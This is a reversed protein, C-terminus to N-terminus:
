QIGMGLDGARAFGTQEAGARTEQVRVLYRLTNGDANAGAQTVRAERFFLHQVAYALEGERKVALVRPTLLFRPPGFLRREIGEM